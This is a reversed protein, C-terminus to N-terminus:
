ISLQFLALRHGEDRGGAGHPAVGVDHGGRGVGDRGDALGDVDVATAVVVVVVVHRGGLVAEDVAVVVEAVVRQPQVRRGVEQGRGGSTRREPMMGDRLDGLRAVDVVRRLDAADDAAVLGAAFVVSLESAFTLFIIIKYLLPRLHM